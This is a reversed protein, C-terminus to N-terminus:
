FFGVDIEDDDTDAEDPSETTEPQVLESPAEVQEASETEEIVTPPSEVPEAPQEVVEASDDSVEEVHEPGEPKKAETYKKGDAKDQAWKRQLLEEEANIKDIREQAQKKIEPFKKYFAELTTLPAYIVYVKNKRDGLPSKRAEILGLEELLKLQKIVSGRSLGSDRALEWQTPFAYGYNENWYDFLLEYILRTNGNFKPHQTYIRKLSNLGPSYYENIEIPYQKAQTENHKM